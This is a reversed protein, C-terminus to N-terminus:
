TVPHHRVDPEVLPFAWANGKEKRSDSRDPAFTRAEMSYSQELISAHGMQSIYGSVPGLWRCWVYLM